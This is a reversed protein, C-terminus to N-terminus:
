TATPLVTARGVVARAWISSRARKLFALPSCFCVLPIEAPIGELDRKRGDVAYVKFPVRTAHVRSKGRKETYPRM